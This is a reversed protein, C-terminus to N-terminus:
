PYSFGQSELRRRLTRLCRQRIRSVSSTAIGLEAALQDHRLEPYYALLFMMRRHREPFREVARWLAVALESALTEREPSEASEHTELEADDVFTVQSRKETARLAHRRAVTALWGALSHSDNLTPQRRLFELWAMQCADDTDGRLGPNAGVIRYMKTSVRRVEDEDPM